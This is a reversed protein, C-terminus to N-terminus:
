YRLELTELRDRYEIAVLYIRRRSETGKRILKFRHVLQISPRRDRSLMSPVRYSDPVRLCCQISEPHRRRHARRTMTVTSGEALERKSDSRKLHRLQAIQLAPGARRRRPRDRPSPSGRSAM